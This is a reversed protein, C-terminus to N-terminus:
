LYLSIGAGIGFNVNTGKAFPLDLWMLPEISIYKNLFFAYGVNFAVGFIADGSGVTVKFLGSAFLAGMDSALFYYRAGAGFDFSTSTQTSAGGWGDSIQQSQVNLGLIGGIMLNDMVFYGGQGGINLSVGNTFRINVETSSTEILINGKKLQVPVQAFTTCVLMTAVITFIIKKM